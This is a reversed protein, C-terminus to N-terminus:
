GIDLNRLVHVKYFYESDIHLKVIPVNILNLSWKFFISFSKKLGKRCISDLVHKAFHMFSRLNYNCMLCGLFSLKWSRLQPFGLNLIKSVSIDSISAFFCGKLPASSRAKPMSYHFHQSLREPYSFRLSSLIYIVAELRM